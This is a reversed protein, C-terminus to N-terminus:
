ALVEDKSRDWTRNAMESRISNTFGLRFVRGPIKIGLEELVMSDVMFHIWIRSMGSRVFVSPFGTAFGVFSVMEHVGSARPENFGHIHDWTHIEFEDTNPRILEKVGMGCLIRDRCRWDNIDRRFKMSRHNTLISLRESGGEEMPDFIM